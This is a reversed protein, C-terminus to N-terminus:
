SIARVYKVMRLTTNADLGTLHQVEDMLTEIIALGLGGEPLGGGVGARTKKQPPAIIRGEDEVRIELRDGAPILTVTVTAPKGGRPPKAHLIANNCAEAVALKIDEVDDVSFNLASAVGAATLRVVRVYRPDAPIKLEVREHKSAPAPKPRKIM